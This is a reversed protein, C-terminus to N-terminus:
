GEKTGPVECMGTEAQRKEWEWNDQEVDKQTWKRKM